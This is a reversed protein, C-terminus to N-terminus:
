RRESMEVKESHSWPLGELGSLSQKRMQVIPMADTYLFVWPSPSRRAFVPHERLARGGQGLFGWNGLVFENVLLDPGHTFHRPRASLLASM